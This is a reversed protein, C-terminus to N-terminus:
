VLLPALRALAEDIEAPSLSCFPLRLFREGDEARTYFGRGDTILIGANKAKEVLDTMHNGEPLTIGIFFGGEPRPYVAQPINRELGALAADLRPRYLDCLRRINEDLLGAKLYQYIMGQSISVPGIYTDTVWRTVRTIVDAPGVLYGMRVGPALIKSVSTMKIVRDPAFSQITPVPEGRYRLPRYPADEVIWFGYQQAWQALQKRKVASTVTGMPNQFDAIVYFLAPAGKKLEAEFQVLNVGDLEMPIGVVDAGARRLLTVARDYTPEEVFVRVGPRLETMSVFQLLELSSNGMFIHEPTTNERQALLERLPAYGPANAYQLLRRGDQLLITEAAHILDEIPFAEVPPIGRTLNIM